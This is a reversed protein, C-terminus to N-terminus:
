SGQTNCPNVGSKCNGSGPGSTGGAGTKCNGLVAEEARLAVQRIEPKTYAKKGRSSSRDQHADPNLTM